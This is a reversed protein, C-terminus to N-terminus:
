SIRSKAGTPVPQYHRLAELPLPYNDFQVTYYKEFDERIEKLIESPEPTDAFLTRGFVQKVIEGEKLVLDGGKFVYIPHEFMEERNSDEKYIAVDADAGPALHGKHKLGLARAPGSRTIICIEELTYERDLHQLATERLIRPHVKRLCANRYERDMLLRIIHPYFIFSGGNPHDTTLYIRWPDRVLLFLEIGIAWQMANVYNKEKFVYPM